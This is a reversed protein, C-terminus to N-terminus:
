QCLVSPAGAVRTANPVNAKKRRWERRADNTLSQNEHVHTVRSNDARSEQFHILLV